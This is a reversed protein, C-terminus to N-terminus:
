KIQVCGVYAVYRCKRIVSITLFLYTFHHYVVIAPHYQYISCTTQCHFINSLTSFHLHRSVPCQFVPTFSSMPPVINYLVTVSFSKHCCYITPHKVVICFQLKQHYGSTQFSENFYLLKGNDNVVLTEKVRYPPVVGQVPWPPGM